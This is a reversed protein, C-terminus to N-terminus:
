ASMRVFEGREVDLIDITGEEIIYHWGHLSVEGAEVRERVPPYTLLRQLQLAISRQETRRLAAEGREEVM